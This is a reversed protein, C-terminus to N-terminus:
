EGAGVRDQRLFRAVEAEQHEWELDFAIGVDFRSGPAPEDLEELRVVRGTLSIQDERALDRCRVMVGEGIEFAHDTELLLGSRSINKPVAHAGEAAHGPATHLQISLGRARPDLRIFNRRELYYVGVANPGRSKSQYLAEEARTILREGLTADDPYKSIGISLTMQIPKGDVERRVFHREIERRIREAVLYAGMRETEPLMLAFEEGSYRAAVDIDRIKNKILIATEKLLIDGVIDGHRENVERFDDLDMYLLCLDLEYRKCRRLERQLNARFSRQNTLGTLLDQASSRESEEFVSMEIIKPRTLRRNVNIFYDFAAVRLGVERGVRAILHIRHQLIANWHGRAEEEDMSLRTVILLLASHVEIGTESRIQALRGLIRHENHSDEDLLAVLEGKVREIEHPTIM